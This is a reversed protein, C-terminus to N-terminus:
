DDVHEDFWEILAQRLDAPLRSGSHAPSLEPWQEPLAGPGDWLNPIGLLKQARRGAESDIHNLWQDLSRRAASHDGVLVYAPVLCA